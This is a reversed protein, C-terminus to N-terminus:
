LIIKFNSTLEEALYDNRQRERELEQMLIQITQEEQTRKEESADEKEQKQKLSVTPTRFLANRLESPPSAPEILIRDFVFGFHFM